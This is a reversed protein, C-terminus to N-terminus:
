APSADVYRTECLQVAGAAFNFFGHGEDQEGGGGGVREGIFQGVLAMLNKFGDADTFTISQGILVRSCGDDNGCVNVKFSRLRNLMMVRRQV